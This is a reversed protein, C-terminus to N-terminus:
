RNRRFEKITEHDIEIGLDSFKKIDNTKKKTKFEGRLREKTENPTPKFPNNIKSDILEFRYKQGTPNDVGEEVESLFMKAPRVFMKNEGYLAHYVVMLESTETHEALGEVYYLNGKYHRYLSHPFLKRTM